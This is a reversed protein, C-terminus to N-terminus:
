HKSQLRMQTQKCLVHVLLNVIYIYMTFATLLNLHGRRIYPIYKSILLSLSPSIVLFTFCILIVIRGM